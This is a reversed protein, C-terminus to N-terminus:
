NVLRWFQAKGDNSFLSSIPVKYHMMGESRRITSLGSWRKWQGSDTLNELRPSYGVRYSFGLGTADLLLPTESAEGPDMAFIYEFENRYGDGDPDVSFAGQGELVKDFPLKDLAWHGYSQDQLYYNLWTFLTEGIQDYGSEVPHIPDLLSYDALRDM